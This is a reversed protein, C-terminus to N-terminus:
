KNEKVAKVREDRHTIACLPDVLLNDPLHSLARKTHTLAIFSEVEPTSINAEMIVTRMNEQPVFVNSKKLTHQAKFIPM